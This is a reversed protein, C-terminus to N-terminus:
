ILKFWVNFTEEGKRWNCSCLEDTQLAYLYKNSSRWAMNLIMFYIQRHLM